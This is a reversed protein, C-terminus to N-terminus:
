PGPDCLFAATDPILPSAAGSGNEYTWVRDTVTDTVTVTYHVTSGSSLFVWWHGNVACGNLVKVTVEVNGPSFFWLLGSDEADALPIAHGSGAGGQFDEWV